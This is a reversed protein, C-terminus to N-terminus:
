HLVINWVTIVNSNKKWIIPCCSSSLNFQKIKHSLSFPFKWKGESTQDKKLFKGLKLITLIGM